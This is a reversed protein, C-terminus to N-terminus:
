TGIGTYRHKRHKSAVAIQKSVKWGDITRLDGPRRMRMLVGGKVFYCVPVM